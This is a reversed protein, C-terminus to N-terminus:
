QAEGRPVDRLVIDGSETRIRIHGRGDGLRGSVGSRERKLDSAGAVDLDITGDDSHLNFGAQAGEDMTVKVNGDESALDMEIAGPERLGATVDGDETRIRCQALRMGDLDVNGDELQADLSGSCDTMRLDGDDLRLRAESLRSSEVQVNGDEGNVVLKGELNSVALDGDDLHVTVPGTIGDLTVNGDEERCDVEAARDRVEVDGDDGRIELAVGRPAQVTYTYEQINVIRMGFNVGSSERGIVTITHGSERFEAHFDPTSGFGVQKVTGRYVIHIDIEPKEWASVTVDGDGHQLVLRTGPPAPFQRSYDRDIDGAHAAAADAVLVTAALLATMVPKLM